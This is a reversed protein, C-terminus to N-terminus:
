QGTDIPAFSSLLAADVLQAQGNVGAARRSLLFLVVEAIHQASLAGRYAPDALSDADAITEIGSNGTMGTLTMGPCVANIRLGRAAFAAAASRVLGVVGHKSFSYAPVEAFGIVGAASATAVCAGGPRLIALARQVGLFTGRLNVGLVRDFMAATVQEFPVYPQLTGANLFALDLGGFGRTAAEFMALNDAESAIDASIALANGGAQAILAVTRAAAAEDLDVVAIAAGEASLRQSAARGIGSGGGTVLAVKGEFLRSM